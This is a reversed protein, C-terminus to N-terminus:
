EWLMDPRPVRDGVGHVNAFVQHDHRLWYAEGALGTPPHLAGCDRPQELALRYQCVSSSECVTEGVLQVM